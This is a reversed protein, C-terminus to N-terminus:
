AILQLQTLFQREMMALREKAFVNFLPSEKAELFTLRNDLMLKLDEGFTQANQRPLRLLASIRGKHEAYVKMQEFTKGDAEIAGFFENLWVVIGIDDPMNKALWAFGALTDHLGNGGTLVTHVVVRRGANRLVGLVGGEFLYQTLPLFCSAGNDVVFTVDEALIAMMLEDFRGTNVIGRDLLELRRTKFASYGAFTANVPDTDVCVPPAGTHHLYYQGLLAAVLSKGVGGKGQLVLHVPSINKTM